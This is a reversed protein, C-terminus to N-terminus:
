GKQEWLNKVTQYGSAFRDRLEPSALYAIVRTGELLFPAFAATRVAELSVPFATLALYIVSCFLWARIFGFSAGLAHDLWDLKARKLAGRLKASVFTGAIVFLLFVFIFGLLNASRENAVFSRFIVAAFGYLYIAAFLGVIMSVLSFVGKLIGKLAGFGTSVIVVTLVFYDLVNM